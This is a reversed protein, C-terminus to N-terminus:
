SDATLARDSGWFGLGILGGAGETGGLTLRCTDDDSGM